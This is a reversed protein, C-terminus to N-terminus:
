KFGVPTGSHIACLADPPAIGDPASAVAQQTSAGAVAQGRTLVPTNAGTLVSSDPAPAEAAPKSVIARLTRDSLAAYGGFTARFHLPDALYRNIDASTDGNHALDPWCSKAAALWSPDVSLAERDSFKVGMENARCGTLIAAAILLIAWAPKTGTSRRAM